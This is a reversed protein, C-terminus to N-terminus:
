PLLRFAASEHASGCFFSHWEHDTKRIFRGFDPTTMLTVFAELLKGSCGRDFPCIQPCSNQLSRSFLIKILYIPSEYPLEDRSVKELSQGRINTEERDLSIVVIAVHRPVMISGCFAWRPM